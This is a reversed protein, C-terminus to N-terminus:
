IRFEEELKNTREVFVYTGSGCWWVGSLWVLLGTIVTEKGESLGVSFCVVVSMAEIVMMEDGGCYGRDSVVEMVINM